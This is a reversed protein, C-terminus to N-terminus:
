SLKKNFLRVIKKIRRIRRWYSKDPIDFSTVDPIYKKNSKGM